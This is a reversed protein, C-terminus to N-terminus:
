HKVKNLSYILVILWALDGLVNEPFLKIGFSAMVVEIVAIMSAILTICIGKKIVIRNRIYIFSALAFLLNVIVYLWLVYQGNQLTFTYFHNEMNSIGLVATTNIQMISYMFVLIPISIFIYYFNIKITRIFIYLVTIGILPIGILYLYYFPKLLYLYISSNVMTFIILTIYRLTYVLIIFLCMFKIKKPSQTALKIGTVLLAFILILIIIYIEFMIEGM